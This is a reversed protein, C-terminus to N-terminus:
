KIKYLVRLPEEIEYPWYPLKLDVDTESKLTNYTKQNRVILRCDYQKTRGFGVQAKKKWGLMEPTQIGIHSSSLGVVILM